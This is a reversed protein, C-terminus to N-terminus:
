YIIGMVDSVTILIWVSYYAFLTSTITLVLIGRKNEEM